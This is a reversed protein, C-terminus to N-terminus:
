RTETADLYFETLTQRPTALAGLMDARTMVRVVRGRAMVVLHDAIREVTDLIHSSLLVSGGRRCWAALEQELAFCSEPDLGVFSEDLVILGPDALLAAAVAVKRRTGGSLLSVGQHENEKIRCAVLVHDIRAAVQSADSVRFRASLELTERVTLFEVLEIEQPVLHCHRRAAEPDNTVDTSGHVIRGADANQLGSVIRMLTSKGAGNPGILCTLAGDPIQFSVDELATKKGYRRSLAEIRTM